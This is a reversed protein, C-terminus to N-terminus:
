PGDAIPWAPFEARKIRSAPRRGLEDGPKLLWAYLGLQTFWVLAASTLDHSLFHAGRAEQGVAFVTGVAIGLLLAGRAVRPASGRLAFYGCLLAFGSGAHAGPFCRAHPLYDPRDGFLTIYPRDGGFGALDWPCDINTVSKLLGVIGIAGAMAWFIYASARRWPRAPEWCWSLVWALLAGAAVARVLWRGGTHLLNRAWWAQEGLWRGSAVDFYLWDAIARDGSLAALALFALLFGGAPLL